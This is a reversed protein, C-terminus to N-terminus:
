ALATQPLMTSSHLAMSTLPETAKLYGAASRLLILNYPQPWVEAKSGQVRGQWLVSRKRTEQLCAIDRAHALWVTHGTLYM